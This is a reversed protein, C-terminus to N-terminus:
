MKFLRHRYLGADTRITLIYHGQALHAVNLRDTFGSTLVVRGTLDLLKLEWEQTKLSGDILELHIIDQIPNPYIAIGEIIDDFASVPVFDDLVVTM